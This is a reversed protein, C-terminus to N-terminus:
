FSSRIGFNVRLDRKDFLDANSETNSTEFIVQPEFGYYTYESLGLTVRFATRWDERTDFTYASQAFTRYEVDAGFGLRLTMIPQDVQYTAGLSIGDFAVDELESLTNRFSASVGATDAGRLTWTWRARGGLALFQEGDSYRDQGEVFGSLDLRRGNDYRNTKAVLAQAFLLYPQDDYWTQGLTGTVSWPGRADEPLWRRTLSATMSLDAFDSGRADPALERADPSLIYTRGQISADAFTAARESLALRYSLNVGAEIQLGSLARAEGDLVFEFPLGPLIIVESASGGNVNSSPSVGFQLSIALPNRQRLFRFDEAVSQEAVPDPAFEGARRLWFQARTDQLQEAHGRAVIRAAAYREDDTTAAGWARGGMQVAGSFDGVILAVRARLILAAVDQPDRAILADALDAAEAPRGEDILAAALGRMADPTLTLSDQAHLPSSLAVLAAV